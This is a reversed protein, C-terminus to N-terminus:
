ESEMKKTTHLAASEKLRDVEEKLVAIQGALDSLKRFHSYSRLYNHYPIAPTGYWKSNNETISTGVGSQAQIQIGNAISLHGAIGAQGGILCDEGIKTSGAVATQAAIVTRSGITVNHAVQILNDLKVGSAIVTPGLSGRDIVTNSGVEVDDGIIVNGTQPIKAYNGSSDRAFGFGDSGIVANAHIVCRAGIECQHYIKVGPYLICDDGIRCHDGIFVQGYVKVNRGIVVGKRIIVMDDIACGEGIVATADINAGSAIGSPISISQQFQSLLVSLALYVNDVRLLTANVPKDPKFDSPVIVASAETNYIHFAYKPNALFSITGKRGEEIKSAGSIAMEADGEVSAGILEAIQGLRIQMGCFYSIGRKKLRVSEFFQPLFPIGNIM